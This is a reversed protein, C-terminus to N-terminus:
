VIWLLVNLVLTLVLSALITARWPVFVRVRRGDRGRGAPSSSLDALRRALGRAAGPFARLVLNLLVTLVVSVAISM